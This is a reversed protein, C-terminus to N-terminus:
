TEGKVGYYAFAARIAKEKEEPVGPQPHKRGEDARCCQKYMGMMDKVRAINLTSVHMGFNEHSVFQQIQSYTPMKGPIDTEPDPEYEFTIYGYEDM